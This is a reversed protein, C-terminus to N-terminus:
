AIRDTTGTPPQRWAEEAIDLVSRESGGLFWLEEAVRRRILGRLPKGGAFYWRRFEHAAGKRNGDQLKLLMTSKAFNQAGVNFVFSALAEVEHVLLSINTTLRMVSDVARQADTALLIEAEDVTILDFTETPRMLHGYGITKLGAADSYARLRLAEFSRLVDLMFPSPQIM